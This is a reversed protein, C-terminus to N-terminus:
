EKDKNEKIERIKDRLSKEEYWPTAERLKSSNPYQSKETLDVTRSFTGLDPDTISMEVSMPNYPNRTLSVKNIAHFRLGDTYPTMIPKGGNLSRGSQPGIGGGGESKESTVTVSQEVGNSNVLSHIKERDTGYNYGHSPRSAQETEHRTVTTTDVSLNDGSVDLLIGTYINTVGYVPLMGSEEEHGNPMFNNSRLKSLGSVNLEGTGINRTGMIISITGDNNVELRFRSKHSEGRMNSERENYAEIKNIAGNDGRVIEEIPRFSKPHHPVEFQADIIDELIRKTAPNELIARTKESMNEESKLFEVIEGAKLGDTMKLMEKDRAELQSKSDEAVESLSEWGTPENNQEQGGTFRNPNM